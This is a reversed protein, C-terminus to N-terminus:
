AALTAHLPAPHNLPVRIFFSTGKHLESQVWCAGQHMEVLKKVIALGLGTGSTTASLHKDVREFPLFIKAIQDESIGRGTDTVEILLEEGDLTAVITVAGRDTYLIANSVVNLLVQRMATEDAEIVANGCRNDLTLQLGKQEARVRVIRMCDQLFKTVPFPTRELQVKGAEIKALDLIKDIVALLHRGSAVIDGAYGAQKVAGTPLLQHQILESFGIIANLPTRLEHSMNALFESKARNAQEAAQSALELEHAIEETHFRLKIAERYEASLQWGNGVILAVFPPLMISFIIGLGSGDLVFALEAIACLALLNSLLVTRIPYLLFFGHVLEGLLLASFLAESMPNGRQMFLPVAAGWIAGHALWLVQLRQQWAAASLRWAHRKYRRLMGVAVVSWLAVALLWTGTYAPPVIGIAPFVGSVLAAIVVSFPIGDLCHIWSGFVLRVLEGDVRENLAQPDSASPSTM